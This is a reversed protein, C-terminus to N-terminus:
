AAQRRTSSGNRGSSGRRRRRRAYVVPPRLGSLLAYIGDGISSRRGGIVGCSATRTATSPPMAKTSKAAM